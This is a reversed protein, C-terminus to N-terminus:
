RLTSLFEEKLYRHMTADPDGSERVEMQYRFPDPSDDAIMSHCLTCEDEIPRGAEDVISENHCRFCGRGRAPHGRQDPYSNWTISMEPHINRLYFAQLTSVASDIEVQKATALDPYNRRYFFQLRREIGEMASERDPYGSTVAALAERKLYPLSRDLMGEAIRWDIGAAPDEYIHTVRNHCDVCDMSRVIEDGSIKSV